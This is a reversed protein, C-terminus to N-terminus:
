FALVLGGSVDGQWIGSGSYVFLCEGDDCFAGGGSEVVTYFGRVEARLGLNRTIFTKAGLAIGATFRTDSGGGGLGPVYRTAGLLLTGFCRIRGEGTEEQVGVLFRELTLDFDSEVGLSDRLATEQRSYLLEVRWREGALIDLAGGWVLGGDFSYERELVPSRVSGGFQYGAFPAIQVTQARASAARLVLAAALLPRGLWPPLRV